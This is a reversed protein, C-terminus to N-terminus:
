NVYKVDAQKNLPITNMQYLIYEAGTKRTFELKAKAVDAPAGDLELHPEETLDPLGATVPVAIWYFNSTASAPMTFTTKDVLAPVTGVPEYKGPNDLMDQFSESYNTAISDDSKFLQGNILDQAYPYGEAGLHFYYVEGSVPAETTTPQTTAATANTPQTTALTTTPQTTAETTTPQTTAATANTPQTTALTTTALRAVTKTFVCGSTTFVFNGEIIDQPLGFQTPDFTYPFAISGLNTETYNPDSPTFVATGSSYNNSTFLVTAM